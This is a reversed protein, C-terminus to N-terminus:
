GEEGGCLRNRHVDNGTQKCGGVSLDRKLPLDGVLWRSRPGATGLSGQGVPLTEAQMGREVCIHYGAFCDKGVPLTKAQM